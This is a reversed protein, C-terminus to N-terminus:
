GDSDEKMHALVPSFIRMSMEMFRQDLPEAGYQYRFGLYPDGSEGTGGYRGHWAANAEKIARDPQGQCAYLAFQYSTESMFPLPEQQGQLFLTMLQELLLRAEQVPQFAVTQDRAVVVTRLPTEQPLCHLILHTIWARLLDRGKLRAPRAHLVGQETLNDIRGCLLFDEIKIRFLAPEVAPALHVALLGYFQTVEDQLERVAIEGVKGHPLLGRAKWLRAQGDTNNKQVLLDLLETELLYRDLGELSFPENDDIREDPGSLEVGLRRRCFFRVPHVFFDVFDKLEVEKGLNDPALLPLGQWFGAGADSGATLRRAAHCNEESYSFLSSGPQFYAPHFPQLRHRTVFGATAVQGEGPPCVTGLYDLLESVLVSPPLTTDDRVSQGVYSIYLQQRASLLAEIFLYRDDHRPSRDGRRPNRSMLDFSLNFHPRPFDGDNMGLLCVIKFPIARMPLLSCFTVGGSLFGHASKEVRLRQHLWSRIVQLDLAEGFGTEAQTEGMGQLATRLGLMDGEQESDVALCDDVLAQLMEGWEALQRKGTLRSLWAFLVEVADLLRGLLDAEGGDLPGHPLIGAFLENGGAMAYGLLLRDLGARWTNEDYAPLGFEEKQRGDRGWRIGVESVWERIREGDAASLSFRRSVLSDGLLNVIDRAAYRGGALELLAFFTDLLLSDAGASKDALSFPMFHPHARDLGFVAQVLPTYTEIDPAMVIIDSTNLLPDSDFLALLHDQLVEVERMPSHCSHIVLSHDAESHECSSLELIDRHISALLSTDEPPEYLDEELCDREQLLVLFDRAIHGMSALLANGSELYLEDAGKGERVQRRSIDKEPMIDGWWHRCPNMFFLNVRIHNSLADFVELHFPPLSSIGFLTIRSPLDAPVGEQMGRLFRALMEGRHLQGYRAAFRRWLLAQWDDEASGSEWVAILDPRYIIYQDFLDALQSALQFRKLPDALYSALHHFLPEDKLEALLEMLQWGARQREYASQDSEPLVRHFIDAVFTNPFPFLCNAWVSLQRALEMTLWVAMGRSQVVVIEPELPPLPDQRFIEGCQRALIELRNSTFLHIAM